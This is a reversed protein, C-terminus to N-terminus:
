LLEGSVCIKVEGRTGSQVIKPALISIISLQPMEIQKLDRNYYILLRAQVNKAAVLVHAAYRQVHTPEQRKFDFCRYLVRCMGECM